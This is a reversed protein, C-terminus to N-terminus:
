KRKKALITISAFHMVTFKEPATEELMRRHESEFQVIEKESLSAGIGRCTKIRGNWSERTFPVQLDFLEEKEVTFYQRYSDPVSLLHRREGGGTWSPNYQLILEESKGAIKDEYPLWEMYLIALRGDPKLIRSILPALKVHDFYHFCQCATVTDFSGDQFESQEAPVCAFTIKMGEKQALAIAQAIQNPSIDIGTFVAGCSYLNRPLVGTGTGIDLVNQGKQCLGNELIKLYFEKPYIDRYKAYDLSTRGWDFERGNDINKNHM